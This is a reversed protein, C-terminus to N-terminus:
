ALPPDYLDNTTTDVIKVDRKSVYDGGAGTFINKAIIQDMVAEIQPATLDAKPEPLTISVAGGLSNTFTMRLVKRITTAM